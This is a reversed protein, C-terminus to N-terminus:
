EEAVPPEGSEDDSAAKKKPKKERRNYQNMAASLSEALAFEVAETSDQLSKEILPREEESFKGLVHGIMQGSGGAAGIGVKLRPFQNHGLCEIISKIGNHGGASGSPKFKMKGLPTDVDDYIILIGDKPVKYFGALRAVSKGSLNMYTQPKVLILESGRRAVLAKSKKDKEWSLGQRDALLDLADFGVNHRTGDYDAGPNGLGVILRLGASSDKSQKPQQKQQAMPPSKEAKGFLRSIFSM